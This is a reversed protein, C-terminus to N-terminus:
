LAWSGGDESSHIRVRVVRYPIGLGPGRTRIVGPVHASVSLTLSTGNASSFVARCWSGATLNRSHAFVLWLCNVHAIIATAPTATAM